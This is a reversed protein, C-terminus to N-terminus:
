RRDSTLTTLYTCVAPLASEFLYFHGGPLIRFSVPRRAHGSWAALAGAPVLPDADGGLVAVPTELPPGEAYRYSGLMRLDDRLTHLLADALRPHGWVHDPVGGLSRAFHRLRHRPWDGDPAHRGIHRPARSASAVLWRPLRNGEELARVLEYSLLAGMSHGFVAFDGTLHSTLEAALRNVAEPVTGHAKERGFAPLRGPLDAGLLRWDDPLWAAWPQFSAASGGAHHLCVLTFSAAAGPTRSLDHVTM